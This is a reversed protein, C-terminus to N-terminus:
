ILFFGYFDLEPDSDSQYDRCLQLANKGFQPRYRIAHAEFVKFGLLECQFLIQIRLVKITWNWNSAQKSVTTSNHLLNCNLFLVKM